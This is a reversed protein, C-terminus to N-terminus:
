SGGGSLEVGRDRAARLTQAILNQLANNEDLMALGAATTGGPSTVKAALAAPNDASQSALSAAGEVMSLAMALAQDADLGLDTGAQALADIFRYVFAPGSGALATVADMQEEAQIWIPEGLPELLADLQPKFTTSDAYIGVPAKGLAAALNPMLRVIIRGPFASKLADTRTGALISLVLGDADVVKAVDAQLATFLQPKIGLLVAAFARGVAQTSKFCLVGDPLNEANPDVVVFCAPDHGAALWGDLMARGMNGCGFLLLPSEPSIPKM